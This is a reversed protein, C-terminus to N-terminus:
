KSEEGQECNHQKAAQKAKGVLEHYLALLRQEMIHWGYKQEYAKRGNTGLDECLEPSDRLKIIAERIEEINNANVVLGCKEESVKKATSTGQNVLIPKSCIMANFLTSGCTYRNTPVMSDRLVFFLDARLGREIIEEYSIKGIFEVKDPM